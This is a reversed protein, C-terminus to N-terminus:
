FTLLKKFPSADKYPGIIALNLGSNSFYERALARMESARVREINRILEKIGVFSGTLAEQGGYFSALQDSTEMGMIMHGILNDKAKKLEKPGVLERRLRRMEELIARIVTEIKAHDVGASVEFSGRDPSFEAGASIHYAAGLRERIVMFLRSSMGGGLVNSLVQLAHRRNDFLGFTRVGLILHSQDSKKYKIGVCPKSQSEVTDYKKIKEARPLHGFTRTLQAKIKREDFNGSVTIITSPAVYHARRYAILDDKTLRRLIDKTGLIPRGGPQDGYLTKIFFDGINRSPADEYMNIEEMIVGREKEVEREAIVPNLYVDSVLDIIEPLKHNEAKAWYGTVEQNTFANSEAGLADLESSIQGVKPRRVTGKFVMHELFHSIGNKEKTEYESGTEVLVLVTSALSSPNPAFILRVGNPLTLKKVNNM